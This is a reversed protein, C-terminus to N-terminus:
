YKTGCYLKRAGDINTTSEKTSDHLSLNITENVLVVIEEDRKKAKIDNM